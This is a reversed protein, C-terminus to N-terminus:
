SFGEPDINWPNNMVRVLLYSIHRLCFSASTGNSEADHSRNEYSYMCNRFSAIDKAMLHDSRIQSTRNDAIIIFHLEAANIYENNV